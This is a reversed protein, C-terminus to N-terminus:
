GHIPNGSAKLATEMMIESLTPHAHITDALEKVTCNKQISLTAEAILDTAHPGIIHVGLIKGTDSDSIIKAQGSIENIVHAKGIHRFLVTHTQINQFLAAASKETHGISAIEPITYVANPLIDYRMTRDQGAINDAAVMGEFSASHALMIKSPGLVDGIAYIGPIHTEMKENVSIWGHEDTQVGAIELGIGQSNPERGICVLIADTTIEQENSKEAQSLFPSPGITVDLRNGSRRCGTISKELFVQIKMKKMERLLISACEEDMFPLPILCSAAEILTVRAGLASFIFAFECGIVGGGLITISEPIRAIDFIDDSSYIQKGDFPVSALNRPRAGTAIILSDWQIKESGGEQLLVDICGIASIKGSGNIYRVDQKELLAHIGKAQNQIVKQKRLMLNNIDVAINESLVIGFEDAKKMKLILEATNKMIKSPICGRNLCTGGIKDAEILTVKKGHRAARVAAVYGGPGGGLITINDKAM